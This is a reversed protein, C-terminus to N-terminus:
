SFVVKARTRRSKIERRPFTTFERERKACVAASNRGKVDYMFFFIKIGHPISQHTCYYTCYITCVM